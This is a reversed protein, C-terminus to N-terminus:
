LYNDPNGLVKFKDGEAILKGSLCMQHIMSEIDRMSAGGFHLLAKLGERSLNQNKQLASIIAHPLNKVKGGDIASARSERFITPINRMAPEVLSLARDWHRRHLIMEDSECASLIMSTKLMHLNQRVLLTQLRESEFGKRKTESSMWWEEWVAAFETDARMKGMLKHIQM